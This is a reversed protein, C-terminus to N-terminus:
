APTGRASPRARGAAGDVVDREPALAVLLEGRPELRGADGGDRVLHRAEEALEVDGVRVAEPDLQVDGVRSRGLVPVAGGEGQDDDM